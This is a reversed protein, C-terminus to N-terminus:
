VLPEAGPPIPCRDVNLVFALLTYYGAVGILDLVGREGFAELAAAFSGDSVEGADLLESVFDYVAREEGSLAAPPQGAAIAEIVAPEVGAALALKQHAHWEYQVTWRRAVLLTALENLPGPLSSRFRVVEGLRQAADALEPSRLLADFPGGFRGRPGAAISEAVQRQEATLEAATLPEFRREPESM